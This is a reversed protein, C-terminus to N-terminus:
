RSVLWLTVTSEIVAAIFLALVLMTMVPLTEKMFSAIERAFQGQRSPRFLNFLGKLMIGGFRIGYASAVVIAPIEIIGHPLIGKAVFEWQGVEPAAIGVIYGLLMGNIVLFSLPVIGFLVGSFIMMVSKISNNLFIFWFMWLQPNDKTSINQVISKMGQLQGDLFAQFQDANGYGLIIGAVFVLFSAIFYHKM